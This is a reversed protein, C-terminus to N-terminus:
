PGKGLVRFVEVFGAAAGLMLFLLTMWPALGFRRDLWEGILYGAFLCSPLIFIVAGYRALMAWPNKESM